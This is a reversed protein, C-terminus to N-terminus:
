PGSIVFVHFSVGNESITVQNFRIWTIRPPPISKFINAQIDTPPNTDCGMALRFVVSVKFKICGNGTVKDLINKKEFFNSEPGSAEFFQMM